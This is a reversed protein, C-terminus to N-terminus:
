SCEGESYVLGTVPCFMVPLDEVGSNSYSMMGQMNDKVTPDDHVPSGAIKILGYCPTSGTVIDPGMLQSYSPCIPSVPASFQSFLNESNLQTTKINNADIFEEINEITEESGLIDKPSVRFGGIHSNM